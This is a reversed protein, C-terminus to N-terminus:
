LFAALTNWRGSNPRVPITLALTITPRRFNIHPRLWQSVEVGRAAVRSLGVVRPTSIARFRLAVSPAVAAAWFFDRVPIREVLSTTGKALSM